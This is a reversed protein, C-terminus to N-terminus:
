RTWRGVMEGGVRILWPLLELPRVCFQPGQCPMVEALPFWRLNLSADRGMGRRFIGESGMGQLQGAFLHMTEKVTDMPQGFPSWKAELTTIPSAWALPLRVEERLERRLAQEPTERSNLGGGPLTWIPEGAGNTLLVSGGQVLIIKSTVRSTVGM